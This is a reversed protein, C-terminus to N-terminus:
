CRRPMLLGDGDTFRFRAPDSEGFTGIEANPLEAIWSLYVDSFKAEGIEVALHRMYKGTGDCEECNILTGRYKHTGKGNCEECPQEKPNVAPIPYWASPVTIFWKDIKLLGPANKREPVDNNRPVRIIIHGNSAFTYEGRSWPTMLASGHVSVDKDCYKQLNM